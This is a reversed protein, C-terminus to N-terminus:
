DQTAHPINSIVVIHAKCFANEFLYYYFFCGYLFCADQYAAVRWRSMLPTNVSLYHGTAFIATNM